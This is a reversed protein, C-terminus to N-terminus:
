GLPKAAGGKQNGFPPAGLPRAFGSGRAGQPSPQARWETGHSAPPARRRPCSLHTTLARPSPAPRRERYDKTPKLFRGGFLGGIGSPRWSRRASGPRLL